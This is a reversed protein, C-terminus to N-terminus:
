TPPVDLQHFQRFDATSKGAKELARVAAYAAAGECQEEEDDSIRNACGEERFCEPGCLTMCDLSLLVATLLEPAAAVLKADDESETYIIIAAEHIGQDHYRTDGYDISICLPPFDGPDHEAVFTDIAPDRYWKAM